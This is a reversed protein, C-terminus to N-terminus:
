QTACQTVTVHGMLPLPPPFVADVCVELPERRASWEALSVIRSASAVVEAVSDGQAIDRASEAAVATATVADMAWRIAGIVLGVVLLLAPIAIAIEATVLGREDRSSASRVM